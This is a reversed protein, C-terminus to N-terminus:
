AQSDREEARLSRQVEAEQEGPVQLAPLPSPFLCTAAWLYLCAASSAMHPSAGMSLM